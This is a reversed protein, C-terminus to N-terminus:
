RRRVQLALGETRAVNVREGPSLDKPGFAFWVEGGAMVRGSDGDWDLVEVTERGWRGGIRHPSPRAWQAVGIVLKAAMFLCGAAAAALFVIAVPSVEATWAGNLFSSSNM